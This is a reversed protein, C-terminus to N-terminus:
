TGLDDGFLDPQALQKLQDFDDVNEYYRWKEALRLHHIMPEDPNPPPEPPGALRSVLAEVGFGLAFAIAAAVGWGFWVRWGSRRRISAISPPPPMQELTLRELTRHTFSPSPEPRPLYDLLGWAQRLADAEARAGADLQLKAELAQAQADDLEGDLYAVLEAKDKDNLPAM